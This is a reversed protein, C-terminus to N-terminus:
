HIDTDTTAHGTRRALRRKGTPVLGLRCGSRGSAVPAPMSTVFHRFGRSVRAHEALLHGNVCHTKDRIRAGKRNRAAAANAAELPRAERAYEPHADCYVQFRRPVEHVQHLTLGARLGSLIRLAKDDSMKHHVWTKPKAKPHVPDSAM